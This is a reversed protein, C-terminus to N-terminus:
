RDAMLEGVRGDGVPTPLPFSVASLQFGLAPGTDHVPATGAASSSGHDGDGVMSRSHSTPLPSDHAKPLPIKKDNGVDSNEVRSRITSIRSGSMLSEGNTTRNDPEWAGPSGILTVFSAATLLLVIFLSVITRRM